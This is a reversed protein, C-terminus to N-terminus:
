SDVFSVVCCVIRLLWGPPTLVDPEGPSTDKARPSVLGGRRPRWGCFALRVTHLGILTTDKNYIKLQVILSRGEPDEYLKIDDEVPISNGILISM